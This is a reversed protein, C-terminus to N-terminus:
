RLQVYVTETQYVVLGGFRVTAELHRIRTSSAPCYTANLCFSTTVEYTRGDITNNVVVTGSTPLLAPDQQRYGDLVEQAAVAAQSRVESFTNVKAQGVFGGLLSWSMVAMLGLSALVEVLNFGRESRM